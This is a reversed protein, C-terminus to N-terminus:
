YVYGERLTGMIRRESVFQDLVNAQDGVIMGFATNRNNTDLTYDYDISITGPISVRQVNKGFDLAVGAVKKNYRESLLSFYVDRLVAPLRTYGALYTVVLKENSRFWGNRRRILATDLVSRYDTIDVATDESDIEQISEISILPYQYLFLEGVFGANFGKNTYEDKFFEQVYRKKLFSRSCYRQMADTIIEGQDVLFSDYTTDSEDIEFYTKMTNLDFLLDM